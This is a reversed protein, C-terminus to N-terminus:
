MGYDDMSTAQETEQETRYGASAPPLVVPGCPSHRLRGADVEGATLGCARLFASARPVASRAAAPSGRWPPGCRWAEFRQAHGVLGYDVLPAMAVHRLALLADCRLAWERQDVRGGVATVTLVVPDGTALDVVHTADLAAFRDALLEVKSGARLTR